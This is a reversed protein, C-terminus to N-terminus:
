NIFSVVKTYVANYIASDVSLSCFLELQHSVLSVNNIM